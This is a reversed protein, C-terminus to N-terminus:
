NWMSDYHYLVSIIRMDLAKEDGKFWCSSTSTWWFGVETRQVKMLTSGRLSNELSYASVIIDEAIIVKSYNSWGTSLTRYDTTTEVIKYSKNISMLQSLGVTAGMILITMLIGTIISLTKNM